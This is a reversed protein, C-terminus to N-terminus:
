AARVPEAVFDNATVAGDTAQLIKALHHRRPTREGRAWKGVTFPSSGISSAFEEYTMRRERLFETLTM